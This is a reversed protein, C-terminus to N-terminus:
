NQKFETRFKYLIDDLFKRSVEDQLTSQKALEDIRERKKNASDVLEKYTSKGYRIGLLYERDHTRLVKIDKEELIEICMNLLRYCHLMNKRDYKHENDINEAFRTVNRKSVWEQYESYEKCYVSFGDVNIYVDGVWLSNKPINGIKLDVGNKGFIGHKKDDLIQYMGFMDKMHNKRAISLTNIDINKVNLWERLSLSGKAQLSVYSFDILEKRPGEIPNLFKKSTTQAKKIQSYAYAGYSFAVKKSLFNHKNDIILDKFLPHCYQIFKPDTFAVESINPNQNGLLELFRGIEYGVYDDTVNIQECHNNTLVEYDSAIYVFKKDVDSEPVNLGYSHSGVITEFLMRGERKIQEYKEVGSLGKLIRNEM